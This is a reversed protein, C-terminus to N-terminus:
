AMEFACLFDFYCLQHEGGGAGGEYPPSANPEEKTLLPPM